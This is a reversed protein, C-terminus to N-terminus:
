FRYTIHVPPLLNGTGCALDSVLAGELLEPEITSILQQALKPSTFFAGNNRLVDAPITARAHASPEGDLAAKIRERCRADISDSAAEIVLAELECAYKAFEKM